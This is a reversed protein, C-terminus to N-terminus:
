QCTFDICKKDAGCDNGCYGCHKDNSFSFNVCSDVCFRFGVPCDCMGMQCTQGNQCKIGCAGCNNNDHLIHSECGNTPDLDCNEHLEPCDECWIAGNESVCTGTKFTSTQCNNDCAGCNKNDTNSIECGDHANLNCNLTSSDCLLCEKYYCVGLSTHSAICETECKEGCYIYSVVTIILLILIKMIFKM